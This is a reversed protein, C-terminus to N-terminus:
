ADPRLFEREERELGEESKFTMLVQPLAEKPYGAVSLKDLASQEIAGVAGASRARALDSDHGVVYLIELTPPDAALSGLVHTRLVEVGLEANAHAVVQGLVEKVLGNM